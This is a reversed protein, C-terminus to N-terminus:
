LKEGKKNFLNGNADRYVNHAIKEMGEVPDAKKEKPEKAKKPRDKLKFWAKIGYMSFTYQAIYVVFFWFPALAANGPLPLGSKMVLSTAGASGGFTALFIVAMKAIALYPKDGLKEVLWDFANKIGLEVIFAIVFGAFIMLLFSVGYAKFFDEVVFWLKEM